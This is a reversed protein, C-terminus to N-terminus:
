YEQKLVAQVVKLAEVTPKVDHTRIISAGQISAMIQAAISGFLREEVPLSLIDGVMTKRSLGVLIPLGLNGLRSLQNLLLLNHATTKGFGFGPDLIIRNRSINNKLCVASRELLFNSVEDFVNKYIPNQQMNSPSNQMHMLCIGVQSNAILDLAGPMQLAYIDNILHVGRGIAEQMIEPKYTDISLTIDFREKVADLSAMLRDMEKQLSIRESSPRSSEAGIDILDAGERVMEDVRSLILEISKYRGGDFFSDPTLNLIGMVLPKNLAIKRDRLQVFKLPSAEEQVPISSECDIEIGNNSLQM